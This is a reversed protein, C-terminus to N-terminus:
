RKSEFSYCISPSHEWITRDFFWVPWPIGTGGNRHQDQRIFCTWTQLREPGLGQPRPCSRDCCCCSISLSIGSLSHFGSKKAPVRPQRFFRGLVSMIWGDKRCTWWLFFLSFLELSFCNWPIKMEYEYIAAIMHENECQATWASHMSLSNSYSESNQDLKERYKNFLAKMETIMEKELEDLPTKGDTETM